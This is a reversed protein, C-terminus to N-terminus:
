TGRTFARGCRDVRETTRGASETEGTEDREDLALRYSSLRDSEGFSAFHRRDGDDSLGRYSDFEKRVGRGRGRGSGRLMASDAPTLM